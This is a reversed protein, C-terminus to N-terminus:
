GCIIFEQRQFCKAKIWQKTRGSRYLADSRKSVVGEVGLLCAHRLFTPGDEQFHESFRVIGPATIIARLAEKREILPLPRLDLGGLFLLDFAFYRLAETRGKALADQLAGFEPVGDKGEVALEGDIIAEHVGLSRVASALPQGMRATWDLGSRTLFTIEGAWIHIQIRYGDLKLEHLWQPGSPPVAKTTALAPEIFGPDPSGSRGKARPPMQENPSM